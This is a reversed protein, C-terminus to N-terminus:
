GIRTVCLPLCTSIVPGLRWRRWGAQFATRGTVVVIHPLKGKRNRVLNLAETRANQARDSRLTWKCSISAHLIPHANNKLRLSTLRAFQDDVMPERQNANIVDDDLPRRFVVVDPM